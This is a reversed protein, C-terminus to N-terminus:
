RASGPSAALEARAEAEWRQLAPLAFIADCWAQSVPDVDVVYSRLRTAVPAFMADAISFEGFLFPGAAGFRARCDRWIETVRDIDAQVGATRGVGPFRGVLNMPMNTRLTSFGAHMENSVARAHARASREAPWLRAEPVVENLYECIALSESIVVPVAGPEVRHLLAPVKGNPSHVAIAAKTTPQNLPICVEDFAVGAGGRSACHVLALWPRLSWSSLNKDGIIIQFPKFM